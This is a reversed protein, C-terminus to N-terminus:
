IWPPIRRHELITFHLVNNTNWTVENSGYSLKKFIYDTDSSVAFLDVVGNSTAKRVYEAETDLFFTEGVGIVNNVSYDHGGIRVTQAMGTGDFQLRFDADLVSQNNLQKLQTSTGAYDFAYDFPFDLGESVKVSQPVLKVTTEKTWENKLSVFRLSLKVFKQNEFVIENIGLYKCRIYWDNFYFKGSENDASDVELLEILKNATTRPSCVLLADWQKPEIYLDNNEISYNYARATRYSGVIVGKNEDASWLDISQNRHNVYKIKDM